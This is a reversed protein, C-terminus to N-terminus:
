FSTKSKSAVRSKTLGKYLTLCGEVNEAAIGKASTASFPEIGFIKKGPIPQQTSGKSGKSGGAAQHPKKGGGQKGAKSGSAQVRFQGCKLAKERNLSAEQIGELCEYRLQITDKIWDGCSMISRPPFDYAPNTLRKRTDNNIGCADIVEEWDDPDLVRNKVANDINFLAMELLTAQDKERVREWRDWIECAETYTYGLYEITALSDIYTPITSFSDSAFNEPSPTAEPSSGSASPTLYAINDEDSWRHLRRKHLRQQDQRPTAPSAFGTKVLHEQDLFVLM